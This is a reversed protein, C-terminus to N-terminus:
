IQFKRCAKRGKKYSLGGVRPSRRSHSVLAILKVDARGSLSSSTLSFPYTPLRFSKECNECFKNFESAGDPLHSLCLPLSFDYPSVFRQPGLKDCNECLKIFESARDGLHFFCLLLPFRSTRFSTATAIKRPLHVCLRLFKTLAHM